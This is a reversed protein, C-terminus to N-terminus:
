VAGARLPGGQGASPYILLPYLARQHGAEVGRPFGRRRWPCLWLSSGRCIAVDGKEPGFYLASVLTLCTLGVRDKCLGPLTHKGLHQAWPGPKQLRQLLCHAENIIRVTGPSHPSATAAGPANVQTHFLTPGDPCHSISTRHECTSVNVCQHHALATGYWSTPKECQKM